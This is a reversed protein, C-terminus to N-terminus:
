LTFSGDNNWDRWWLDLGTGQEMTYSGVLRGDRAWQYATGHMLGNQYPECSLLVDPEDWRYTMGHKKGNKYPTEFMLEGTRHFTRTGVLEKGIYYEARKRSRDKWTQTIKENAGAPISSVYRPDSEM